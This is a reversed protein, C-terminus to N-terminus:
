NEHLYKKKAVFYYVYIPQALSCLNLFLLLLDAYFPNEDFLEQVMQFLPYQLLAICAAIIRCTGYVCGFYKAPFAMTLFAVLISFLFARGTLQLVFTLFQVPLIPIMTCINFGATM